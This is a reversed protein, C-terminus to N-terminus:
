HACARPPELGRPLMRLSSPSPTPSAAGHARTSGQGPASVPLCALSLIQHRFRRPPELGRRPVKVIRSALPIAASRHRPFDSSRLAPHRTVGPRRLAVSLAVSFLGGIARVPVPLPSVTRYSRVARGTVPAAHYVGGPALCFLPRPAARETLTGPLSSSPAPLPAGLSIIGGRCRPVSSPKYRRGIARGYSLQISRQGGSGFTVPEFGTPRMSRLLLGRM